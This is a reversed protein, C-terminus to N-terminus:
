LQSLFCDKRSKVKWQEVLVTTNLIIILVNIINAPQITYMCIWSLTCRVKLDSYFMSFEDGLSETRIHEETGMCNSVIPLTKYLWYVTSNSPAKLACSM